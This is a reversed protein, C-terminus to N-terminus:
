HQGRNRRLEELRKLKEEPTILVELIETLWRIENRYHRLEELAKVQQKEEEALKKFRELEGKYHESSARYGAMDLRLNRNEKRLITLISPRKKIAM